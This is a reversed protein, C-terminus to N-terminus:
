EPISDVVDNGAPAIADFDPLDDFSEQIEVAADVAPQEVMVQEQAELGSMLDDVPLAAKQKAIIALGFSTAFFVAALIATAQTLANGGGSPGFITQSGGGGFSAGADAGKGQQLLILGVIALAVLVHFVVIIQEIV